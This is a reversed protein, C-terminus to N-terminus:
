KSRSREDEAIYEEWRESWDTPGEVAADEAFQLASGWAGLAPLDTEITVQVSTNPPLDLPEQLRLVGTGEFVARLTKTM